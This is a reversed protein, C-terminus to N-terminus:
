SEPQQQQIPFKAVPGGEDDSSLDEAPDQPVARVQIAHTSATRWIPQRGSQVIAVLQGGKAHGREKLMGIARCAPTPPHPLHPGEHGLRIGRDGCGQSGFAGSAGPARRGGLCWGWVGAGCLWGHVVGCLSRGWRDFTVEQQESFRMYIATVSHYLAMRRQVLENETFCYIPYDPSCPPPHTPPTPLLCLHRCLSPPHASPHSAPLLCSLPPLSLTPLSRPSFSTRCFAPQPDGSTSRCSLHEQLGEACVCRYHSLLAPMNGKRSFVVLSTKLTNAMQPLVPQVPPTCALPRPNLHSVFRASPAPCPLALCRASAASCGGHVGAAWCCGCGVAPGGAVTVAHYAFMEALGQDALSSMRRGPPIIWAIPPAEDSCELCVCTLTLISTM